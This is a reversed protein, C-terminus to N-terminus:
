KGARANKKVESWTFTKLKGNRFDKARKEVETKQAASMLSEGGDDNYLRLMKYIAELVEGEASDIYQHVKKKLATKTMANQKLM